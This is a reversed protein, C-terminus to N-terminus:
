KWEFEVKRDQQWDQESTGTAEAEGKPVVQFRAPDIGLRALYDAVARARKESLAINYEPTGRPDTHGEILVARDDDAQQICEATQDLSARSDEPVTHEDFGFYVTEMECALDPPRSRGLRQCLGDVCDEDDACDADTDCTGRSVCAGESCKSAPGCERDSECAVCENGRCIQGGPCDDDTECWGQRTVCAGEQCTEGEDCDADEACQM